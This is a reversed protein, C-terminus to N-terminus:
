TPEESERQLQGRGTEKVRGSTVQLYHGGRDRGGKGRAKLCLVGRRGRFRVIAGQEAEPNVKERQM